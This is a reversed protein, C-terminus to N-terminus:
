WSVAEDITAHNVTAKNARGAALANLYATEKPIHPAEGLRKLTRHEQSNWILRGVHHYGVGSHLLGSWYDLESQTPDRGLMQMYLTEVFADRGPGFGSPVLPTAPPVGTSSAASVAFRPLVATSQALSTTEATRRAARDAAAIERRSEAAHLSKVSRALLKAFARKHADDRSQARAEVSGILCAAGLLCMISFQKAVSTM